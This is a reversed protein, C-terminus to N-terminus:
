IRSISAPSGPPRRMSSRCRMSTPRGTPRTSTGICGKAVPRTRWGAGRRGLHQDAALGSLAIRGDQWVDHGLEVGNLRLSLLETGRFDVFTEPGTTDFHITTESEFHAASPDTLDLDIIM